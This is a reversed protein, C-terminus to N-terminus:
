GYIIQATLSFITKKALLVLKQDRRIQGFLDGLSRGLVGVCIELSKFTKTVALHLEGM